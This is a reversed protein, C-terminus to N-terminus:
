SQSLAGCDFIGSDASGRVGARGRVGAGGRGTGFILCGLVECDRDRGGRGREGGGGEGGGGEGGGGEGGGLATGLGERGGARGGGGPTTDGGYVAADGFDVEVFVEEGTGEGAGGAGTDEGEEVVNGGDAGGHPKQTLQPNAHKEPVVQRTPNRSRPRHELPHLM